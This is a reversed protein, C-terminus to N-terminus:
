LLFKGIAEAVADEEHTKETVYDALKKIDPHANAVAIGMGAAEIMYLDNFSDGITMINEREIGLEKALHLVALGKNAEINVFELYEPKSFFMHLKGQIWPELEVVAKKLVEHNGNFLVKITEGKIYTNLNGVEVVNMGSMIVYQHIRDTIKDVVLDDEIYLQVDIGWQNAVDLLHQTYTQSIGRYFCKRQNSNEIIMAGNYSITYEKPQVLDLEQIYPWLSSTARGSCIVIKVGAKRAKQIAKQNVRSITLDKALLTDDMDIAFLKYM